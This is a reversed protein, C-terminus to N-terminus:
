GQPISLYVYKFVYLFDGWEIPSKERDPGSGQKVNMYILLYKLLSLTGNVM